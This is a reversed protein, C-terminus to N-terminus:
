KGDACLNCVVGQSPSRRQIKKLPAVALHSYRKTQEVTSHGLFKSVIFLSEGRNVAQSALSHRTGEYLNCEVGALKCARNWQNRCWNRGHPQGHEDCFVFGEGDLHRPRSLYIMKWTPDLPLVRIRKSKTIERLANDAFARQITVTDNKLDIDHHQLARSEGPRVGHTAAFLIMFYADATLHKFVEEQTEEDILRTKPEPVTGIDPFKPLTQIVEEDVADRFLKQLAAIVNTLSKPAYDLSMFFSKLQRGRIEMMDTDGFFPIFLNMVYNKLSGYYTPSLEDREVRRKCNRLWEEAYVSFSHLSKRKKAYFAEDFTGNEIEGHIQSLTWECHQRSYFSRHQKDCWIEVGGPLRIKWRGGRNRYIRGLTPM